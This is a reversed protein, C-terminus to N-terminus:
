EYYSRACEDGCCDQDKSEPIFEVGCFKCERPYDRWADPCGLEHTKVGNVYLAECSQCTM